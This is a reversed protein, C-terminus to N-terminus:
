SILPQVKEKIWESTLVEFISVTMSSTDSDTEDVGNIFLAPTHFRYVHQTIATARKAITSSVFLVVDNPMDVEIKGNIRVTNQTTRNGTYVGFLGGVSIEKHVSGEYISAQHSVYINGGYFAQHVSTSTNGAIGGISVTYSGTTTDSTTGFNLRIDLDGVSYANDISRSKNTAKNQGVLGGVNITLDRNRIQNGNFYLEVLANTEINKLTADDFMLGVVGGLRIGAYGTAEMMVKVDTVSVDTMSGRLEGVAGGMYVLSATSSFSSIIHLTGGNVHVNEIKGTNASVYGAILGARFVINTSLPEQVTGITINELHVNSVTGSSIHGFVGVQGSVMTIRINRLAFGKGDFTGSFQRTANFPIEFATNSFDLDNALVYNGARNNKMNIFDEPTKIEITEQSALQFTREAILKSERNLTAYIKITYTVSNDLRSINIGILDVLQEYEREQVLVGDANYLKLLLQGTIEDKPDEVIVNFTITTLDVDLIDIQATVESKEKCGALMFLALFLILVTSWKKM